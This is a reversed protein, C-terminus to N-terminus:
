YRTAVDSGTRGLRVSSFEDLRHYTSLSCGAHGLDSSSANGVRRTRIPECTCTQKTVGALTLRAVKARDWSWRSGRRTRKLAAKSVPATEHRRSLSGTLPQTAWSPRGCKSPPSASTVRRVGLSPEALGDRLTGKLPAVGAQLIPGPGGEDRDAM